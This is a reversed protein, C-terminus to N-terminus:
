ELLVLVNATVDGSVESGGSYLMIKKTSKNYYGTMGGVGDAALVMKTKYPATFGGATYDFDDLEILRVKFWGAMNINKVAMVNTDVTISVTYTTSGDGNTLVFSVPSAYNVETTGSTFAAGGATISTPSGTATITTVFSTATTGFPVEFTIKKDDGITGTVSSSGVTVAFATITPAAM